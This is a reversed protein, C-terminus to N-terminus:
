FRGSLGLVGVNEGAALAPKLTLKGHKTRIDFALKERQMNKRKVLGVTLLAVGGALVMSGPFLFVFAFSQGVGRSLEDEASQNQAIVVIGLVAAFGGIGTLIAGPIILNKANSTITLRQTKTMCRNQFCIRSSDCHANANCEKRELSTETAAKEDTKAPESVAGVPAATTVADQASVGASMTVVCMGSLMGIMFYNLRNNVIEESPMGSASSQATVRYQPSAKNLATLLSKRLRGSSIAPHNM